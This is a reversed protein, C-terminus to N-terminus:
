VLHAIFDGKVKLGGLQLTSIKKCCWIKQAPMTHGFSSPEIIDAGDDFLDIFLM